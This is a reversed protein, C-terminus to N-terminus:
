SAIKVLEVGPLAARSGGGSRNSMASEIPRLSRSNQSWQVPFDRPTTKSDKRANKTSSLAAIISADVISGNRMLLMRGSLRAGVEEFIQRTLERAELSHRFKRLTTSDPAAEVSRDINALPTAKRLLGLGAEKPDM